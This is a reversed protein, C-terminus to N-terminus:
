TYQMILSGYKASPMGWDCGWGAGVLIIVAAFMVIM